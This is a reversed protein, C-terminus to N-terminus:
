PEREPDRARRKAFAYGWRAGAHFGQRFAEEASLLQPVGGPVPLGAKEPDLTMHPQRNMLDVERCCQRIQRNEISM